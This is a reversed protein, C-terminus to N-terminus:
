DAGNNVEMLQGITAWSKAFNDFEALSLEFTAPRSTGDDHKVHLQITVFGASLATCHSSGLSVGLKWDISTLQPLSLTASSFAASAKAGKKAWAAELASVWTAGLGTGRLGATFGEVDVSEKAAVHFAYKLFNVVSELDAAGLAFRVPDAVDNKLICSAVLQQLTQPEMTEMAAVAGHFGPPPPSLFPM